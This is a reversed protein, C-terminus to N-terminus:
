KDLLLAVIEDESKDEFMSIIDYCVDDVIHISGSYVDLVINLGGQKYCHIM